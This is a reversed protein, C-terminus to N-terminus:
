EENKFQQAFAAEKFSKAYLSVFILDIVIMSVLFVMLYTSASNAPLGPISMASADVFVYSIYPLIESFSYIYFGTKNLNWMMLIGLFSLLNYLVNLHQSYKLYMNNEMAIFTNEISDAMAPSVTKLQKITQQMKEPSNMLVNATSSGINIACMVFSLICVITLIQPRKISSNTEM